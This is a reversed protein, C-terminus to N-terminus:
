VGIGMLGPFTTEQGIICKKGSLDFLKALGIGLKQLMKM